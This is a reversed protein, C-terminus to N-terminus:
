LSGSISMIRDHLTLKHSQNEAASTREKRMEDLHEEIKALRQGVTNMGNRMVQHIRHSDWPENADDKRQAFSIITEKLTETDEVVNLVIFPKLDPDQQPIGVVGINVGKKSDPVIRVDLGKLRPYILTNLVGIIKGPEFPIAGIGCVDDVLDTPENESRATRIGILLYGGEANAFASVDKALEYRASAADLDYAESKAELHLGERVGILDEFSGREVIEATTDV